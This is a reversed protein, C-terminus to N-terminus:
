EITYHKLLSQSNTISLSALCAATWPTVFLWVRSLPQVSVLCFVSVRCPLMISMNSFRCPLWCLQLQTIPLPILFILDFSFSFWCRVPRFTRVHSQYKTLSIHLLTLTSCYSLDPQTKFSWGWQQTSLHNYTFLPLILCILEPAVSIPWLHQHRLSPSSHGFEMNIKVKQHFLTPLYLFSTVKNLKMKKKKSMFLLSFPNVRFCSVSYQWYFFNKLPDTLIIKLDHQSSICLLSAISNDLLWYIYADTPQKISRWQFYIHLSWQGM